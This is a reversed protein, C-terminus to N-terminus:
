KLANPAGFGTEECRGRPRRKPARSKGIIRIFAECCSFFGHRGTLLYGELWGEDVIKRVVSGGIINTLRPRGQLRRIRAVVM